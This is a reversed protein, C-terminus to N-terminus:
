ENDMEKTKIQKLEDLDDLVFRMEKFSQQLQQKSDEKHEPEPVAAQTIAVANAVALEKTHSFSIEISIIQKEDMLEKARGKVVAKPKGRKDVVFSIDDFKVGSGFGTGLAKLVAERGAFRVAYHAAPRMKQNCYYCEEESFVKSAFRPTRELVREMRAIELIDVGVGVVAM